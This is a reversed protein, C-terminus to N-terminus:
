FARIAVNILITLGISLLKSKLFGRDEEVDYARNFARILASVGNSGSWLAILFATIFGFSAAGGGVDAIASDVLNHLLEKTDGPANQDIVTTLQGAIDVSTVSGVLAGLMVLLIIAPPIAFIVHYAVGAAIDTVKDSQFEKFTEKAVPKVPMKRLKETFSDDSTPQQTRDMTAM